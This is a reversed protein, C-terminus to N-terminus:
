FVVTKPRDRVQLVALRLQNRAILPAQSKLCELPREGLQGDLVGDNVALNNADIRLTHALEILQEAPFPLWDKVREVKKPKIALVQPLHRKDLSLLSERLEDPGRLTWPQKIRLVDHLVALGKERFNAGPVKLPNHRLSFEAKVLVVPVAPQLHLVARVRLGLSPM